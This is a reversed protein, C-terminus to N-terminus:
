RKPLLNKLGDTRWAKGAISKVIVKGINLLAPTLVKLEKTDPLDSSVEVSDFVRHSTLRASVNHNYM